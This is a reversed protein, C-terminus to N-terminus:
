SQVISCTLSNYKSSICNSTPVFEFLGSTHNCKLTNLKDCEMNFNLTNNKIDFVSTEFNDCVAHMIFAFSSSWILKIMMNCSIGKICEPENGSWVTGNVGICRRTIPGSLRYGPQCVASIYEGYQFTPGVHAGIYKGNILLPETCLPIRCLLFMIVILVTNIFKSQKLITVNKYLLLYQKMRMLKLTILDLVFLLCLWTM